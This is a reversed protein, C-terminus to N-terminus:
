TWYTTGPYNTTSQLLFMIIYQVGFNPVELVEVSARKGGLDLALADVAQCKALHDGRAQGAACWFDNSFSSVNQKACSVSWRAVRIDGQYGHNIM